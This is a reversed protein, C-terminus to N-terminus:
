HMVQTLYVKNWERLICSETDITPYGRPTPSSVMEIVFPTTDRM